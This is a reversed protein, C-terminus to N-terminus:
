RKRLTPAAEQTDPGGSHGFIWLLQLPLGEHEGPNEASISNTVRTRKTKTKLIFSIIIFSIVVVVVVVLKGKEHIKKNM